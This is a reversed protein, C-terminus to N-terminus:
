FSTKIGAQLGYFLPGKRKTNKEIGWKNFYKSGNFGINLGVKDTLLWEYNVALRSAFRGGSLDKNSSNFDQIITEENLRKGKGNILFAYSGGFDVNLSSKKGLSFRYGYSLQLSQLNYTNYHLVKQYQTANVFTDRRIEQVTSGVLSNGIKKVVVDQRDETYARTGEYDLKQEVRAYQYALEIHQNKGINMEVAPRIALGPFGSLYPYNIDERDMELWNLAGASIGIRFPFVTQEKNASPQKDIKQHEPSFKFRRLFFLQPSKISTLFAFENISKVPVSNITSAIRSENLSLIVTDVVATGINSLHFSKNQPDNSTIGTQPPIQIVDKNKINSKVTNSKTKLNPSKVRPTTNSYNSVENTKILSEQNIETSLDANLPLTNENITVNNKLSEEISTTVVIPEFNKNDSNSLNGLYNYTMWGGCGGVLLLLLLSWWKKSKYPQKEAMKEQIGDRMAEWSFDEPLDSAQGDFFDKFKKDFNDM